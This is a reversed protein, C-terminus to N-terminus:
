FQPGFRECSKQSYIFGSAFGYIENRALALVWKRIATRPARKCPNSAPLTGISKGGRGGSIVAVRSTGRM